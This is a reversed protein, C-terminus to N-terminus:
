KSLARKPKIFNFILSKNANKSYIHVTLRNFKEGIVPNQTPKRCLLLM